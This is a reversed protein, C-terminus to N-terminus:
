RQVPRRHRDRDVAGAAPTAVRRLLGEGTTWQQGATDLPEDNANAVYSALLRQKPGLM